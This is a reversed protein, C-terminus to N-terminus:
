GASTPRAELDLRAAKGVYAAGDKHVLFRCEKRSLSAMNHQLGAWCCDGKRGVSGLAM